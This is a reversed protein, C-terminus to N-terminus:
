EIADSPSGVTSASSTASGLRDALSGRRGRKPQKKPVKLGERRWIREVVSLSIEWGAQQVLGHIKRYGYRGYQKALEIV